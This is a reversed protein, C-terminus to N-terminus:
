SNEDPEFINDFFYLQFSGCTLTELKEIPDELTWGCVYDKLQHLEGFIEIFHFFEQSAESLGEFEASKLSAFVKTSFNINILTLKNDTKTMKEIGSLM